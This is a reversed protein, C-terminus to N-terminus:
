YFCMKCYIRIPKTITTTKHIPQAMHKQRQNSNLTNVGHSHFVMKIGCIAFNEHKYM